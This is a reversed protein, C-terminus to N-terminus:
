NCSNEVKQNESDFPYPDRLRLVFIIKHTLTSNIMIFQGIFKLPDSRIEPFINEHDTSGLFIFFQFILLYDRLFLYTGWLYQWKSWDKCCNIEGVIKSIQTTEPFRVRELILTM